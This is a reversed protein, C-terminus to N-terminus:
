PGLPIDLQGEIRWYSSNASPLSQIAM